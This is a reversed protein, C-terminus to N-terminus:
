SPHVLITSNVIKPTRELIPLYHLYLMFFTLRSIEHSHHLVQSSWRRRWTVSLDKSVYKKFWVVFGLNYSCMVPPGCLTQWMRKEIVHGTYTHRHCTTIENDEPGDSTLIYQLGITLWVASRNNTWFGDSDESTIM